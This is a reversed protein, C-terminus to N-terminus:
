SFLEQLATEQQALTRSIRRLEKLRPRNPFNQDERAALGQVALVAEDIKNVAVRVEDLKAQAIISM